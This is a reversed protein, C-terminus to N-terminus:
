LGDNKAGTFAHEMYWKAWTEDNLIDFPPVGVWANKEGAGGLERWVRMRAGLKIELKTRESLGRSKTPLQFGPAEPPRSNM